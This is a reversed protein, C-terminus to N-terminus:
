PGPQPGIEDGEKIWWVIGMFAIAMLIFAIDTMTLGIEPIAPIPIKPVVVNPLTLGPFFAVGGSSIFVGLSLTIAIFLLLLAWKSPNELPIKIGVLAGLIYLVMMTGLITVIVLMTGGFAAGVYEAFMLGFPTYGIVFLSFIMSVLLNIVNGRKETGFINIKALIGYTVVFSLVYPLYFQFVGMEQSTAVFDALLSM